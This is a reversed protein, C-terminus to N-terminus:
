QRTCATIAVSAKCISPPKRSVNTLAERRIQASLTTCPPSCQVSVMHDKTELLGEEDPCPCIQRSFNNTRTCVQRSPQLPRHPAQEATRNNNKGSRHTGGTCAPVVQSFSLVSTVASVSQISSERSMSCNSSALLSNCYAMTLLSPVCLGQCSKPFSRFSHRCRAKM